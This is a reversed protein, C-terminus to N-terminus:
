PRQLHAGTCSTGPCILYDEDEGAGGPYSDLAAILIRKYPGVIKAMKNRLRSTEKRRWKERGNTM